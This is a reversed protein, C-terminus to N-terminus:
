VANELLTKDMSVDKVHLEKLRKEQVLTKSFSDSYKTLQTENSKGSNRFTDTQFVKM